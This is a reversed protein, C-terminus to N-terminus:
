LACFQFLDGGFIRKKERFINRGALFVSTLYCIFTTSPIITTNKKPKWIVKGRGQLTQQKTSITESKQDFDAFQFKREPNWCFFFFLSFNPLFFFFGALRSGYNCSTSFLAMAPTGDRAWSADPRSSYIWIILMYPTFWTLVWTRRARETIVFEIPSHDGLLFETGPSDLDARSM